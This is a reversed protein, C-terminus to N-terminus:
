SRDDAALLGAVYRWLHLHKCDLLHPPTAQPHTRVNQRTIRAGRFEIAATGHQYIEGDLAVQRTLVKVFNHMYWSKHRSNSIAELGHWAENAAFFLRRAREHKLETSRGNPWDEKLISRIRSVALWFRFIWVVKPAWHKYRRRCRAVLEPDAGDYAPHSASEWTRPDAAIGYKDGATAAALLSAAPPRAAVATPKPPKKTPRAM